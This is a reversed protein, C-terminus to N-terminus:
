LNKIRQVPRVYVVLEGHPLKLYMHRSQTKMVGRVHVLYPSLNKVVFAGLGLSVRLAANSIEGVMTNYMDMSLFFKKTLYGPYHASSLKVRYRNGALKFVTNKNQRIRGSHWISVIPIQMM